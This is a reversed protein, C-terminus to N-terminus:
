WVKCINKRVLPAGAKCSFARAFEPMNAVVGNIRYVGPSHPNTLASVRKDEDRQNECTWQAFGVFFRQEPTLGDLPQLRQNHTAQQWAEWALILGGLDAVDEGLTLKSNIKIDDVIVYQAYQDAICSTRKQFEQADAKSWWDRLNGKADFNRGEDDFGHILEHGITGGTNGYNPADDLKLDFLPPLLVAAPFNMDNMSANYYANVTPPTMGWEGRDIPKGIKAFQRKTEYVSARELNGLFEDRVIQLTSYDRWKDPYGIKNRMSSLKAQADKKTAESMWDLRKLREGMMQEILLVMDLSKKKIAPPFVKEVFVQGLAEGLDRDVWGVCRKWRPQQEKVGRLYSRYFDFDAKVFATSLYQARARVMHWRLYTQWAALDEKQLLGSLAKFFAPETVNVETLSPAGVASLYDPWRFEPTLAQLDTLKLKHYIKYPDRREVRTLSARALATEIRLVTKADAQAQPTAEGALGLLTAIHQQYRARTEVSKKDEKTYYDRDPLGLGGASAWAIVQESNGPDQDAGFGFMSSSYGMPVRLHTSGLYGALDAKSHLAAIAALDVKLAASGRKEVGAEDICAAFYDGIKQLVPSRGPRPQSADSLLGWLFQQNEDFLKGYVTWRAQDAPIPNLKMWGGCSYRYFDSCPDTSRDMFRVDLSPTYPLESLPKKGEAAGPKAGADTPGALAAPGDLGVLAFLSLLGPGVSWPGLRRSKVVTRTHM